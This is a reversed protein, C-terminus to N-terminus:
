IRMKKACFRVILNRAICLGAAFCGRLTAVDEKPMRRASPNPNSDSHATAVSGLSDQLLSALESAGGVRVAFTMMKLVFNTMNICFEDITTCFVDNELVFNM